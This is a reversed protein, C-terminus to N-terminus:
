IYGLDKLTQEPLDLDEGAGPDYAGANGEIWDHVDMVDTPRDGTTSASFARWSHEAVDSDDLWATRIGHDSVILLDDDPGMADRVRDVYEGCHEYYTRYHDEQTAYAHGASDLVHVQTAVVAAEHRLSELVWGFKQAANTWIARDFDRQPVDAKEAYGIEHWVKRLEGPNHTCPWNHVFRGEGDFVSPADVTGFNWEAGTASEAVNGLRARLSLPLYPTLHASLLEVVPNDWESARHVGMGHERPHLGTAMTPWVQTTHPRDKQYAVTEMEGAAGLRFADVDYHEVLAVDLADVGLVVLTM